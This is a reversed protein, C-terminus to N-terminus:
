NSQRQAIPSGTAALYKRWADRLESLHAALLEDNRRAKEDTRAEPPPDKLKVTQADIQDLLIGVRRPQPGEPLNFQDAVSTVLSAALLGQRARAEYYIHLAERKKRRAERQEKRLAARQERLKERRDRAEERSRERAERLAERREERRERAEDRMQSRQARRQERRERDHQRAEHRAQRYKSRLADREERSNAMEELLDQLDEQADAAMLMFLLTIADEVSMTSLNLQEVEPGETAPLASVPQEIAPANRAPLNLPQHLANAAPQNQINAAPQNPVNQALACPALALLMLYFIRM